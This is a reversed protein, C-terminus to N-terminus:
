GQVTDATKGAAQGSENEGATSGDISDTDPETQNTADSPLRGEEKMLRIVTAMYRVFMKFFHKGRLGIMAGKGQERFMQDAIEVLQPHRNFWQFWCNECHRHRPENIMDLRHGCDLLRVHRVTFLRNRLSRLLKETVVPPKGDKDPWLEKPLNEYGAPPKEEVSSESGSPTDPNGAGEDSQVVREDQTEM